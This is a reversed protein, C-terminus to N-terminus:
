SFFDRFNGGIPPIGKQMERRVMFKKNVKPVTYKGGNVLFTPCVTRFRTSLIAIVSFRKV